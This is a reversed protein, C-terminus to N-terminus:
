KQTVLQFSVQQNFSANMMDAYLEVKYRGGKKVEYMGRYEERVNSRFPVRLQRVAPRQHSNREQRVDDQSQKAQRAM